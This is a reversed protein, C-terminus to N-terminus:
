PFNNRGGHRQATGRTRATQRQRYSCSGVADQSEGCVSVPRSHDRSDEAAEELPYSTYLAASIGGAAMVALDALYFEARTESLLCVVGGKELGLSILGLAIEKSQQEWEGWTFTRYETKHKTSAPQHLAVENKHLRSTEQLVTYVTRVSESYRVCTREIKADDALSPASEHITNFAPLSGAHMRRGPCGNVISSYLSGFWERAMM